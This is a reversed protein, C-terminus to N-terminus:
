FKPFMGPPMGPFMGETHKALETQALQDVKELAMNVAAVVLDQLMEKDEANCLSPDISISIVKKHGNAKASVLGAGSEGEATIFRLNEQAEQMKNRLQEFQGFMKMMDM